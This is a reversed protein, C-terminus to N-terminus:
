KKERWEKRYKLCYTQSNPDQIITIVYTTDNSVNMWTWTTIIVSDNTFYQTKDWNAVEPFTIDGTIELSDIIDYIRENSEHETYFYEANQVSVCTCLVCAVIFIFIIRISKEM